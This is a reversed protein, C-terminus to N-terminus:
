VVLGADLYESVPSFPRSLYLAVREVPFVIGNAALMGSFETGTQKGGVVFKLFIAAHIQTLPM